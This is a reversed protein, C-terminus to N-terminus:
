LLEAHGPNFSVGCVTGSSCNGSSSCASGGATVWKLEDHPPNLEWNCSGILSNRPHKSGPAGCDYPGSGSANTPEMSVGMHVGNIVEIDYFDVGTSILTM